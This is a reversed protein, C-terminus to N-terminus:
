IEERMKTEEQYMAELQNYLKQLLEPEYNTIIQQKNQIQATNLFGQKELAFIINKITIFFLRYTQSVRTQQGKYFVYWDGFLDSTDYIPILLEAIKRTKLPPKKGLLCKIVNLYVLKKKTSLHAKLKLHYELQYLSVARKIRKDDSFELNNQPSTEELVSGKPYLHGTEQSVSTDVNSCSQNEEYKEPDDEGM